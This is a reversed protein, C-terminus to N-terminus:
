SASFTEPGWPIIFRPIIPQFIHSVEGLYYPDPEAHPLTYPHNCCKILDALSRM